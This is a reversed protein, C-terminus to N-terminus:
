TLVPLRTEHGDLVRGPEADLVGALLAAYVDRFDTTPRLDGDDLDTLGPQEGHFGGRVRPGAVFLPGATGHDTGDSTNAAVRRGFESYVLVTVDGGRPGAAVDRLFTGLARDLEGLLRAQANRENAHTDFGGLSVSYVRAPAGLEVCRRVVDLQAGLAGRGGASGGDATDPDDPDDPDDPAEVAEGLLETTRVVDRMARAARAQHEHEGPQEGGL